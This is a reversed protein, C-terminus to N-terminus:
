PVLSMNRLDHTRIGAGYVSHVTKVNIQQLFQLTEFSLFLRFLPRSHGRKFLLFNKLCYHAGHVLAIVPFYYRTIIQESYIPVSLSLKQDKSM